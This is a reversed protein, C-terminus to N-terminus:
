GRAKARIYDTKQCQRRAKSFEDRLGQQGPKDLPANMQPPVLLPINDLAFMPFLLLPPGSKHLPQGRCLSAAGCSRMVQSHRWDNMKRCPPNASCRARARRCADEAAQELRRKVM